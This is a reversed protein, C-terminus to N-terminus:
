CLQFITKSFGIVLFLISNRHPLISANMFSGEIMCSNALSLGFKAHIRVTEASSAFAEYSRKFNHASVGDAGVLVLLPVIALPNICRGFAVFVNLWKRLVTRYGTVM